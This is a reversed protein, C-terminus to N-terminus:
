MQGEERPMYRMSRRDQHAETSAGSRCCTREAGVHGAVSWGVRVHTRDGSRVPERSAPDSCSPLGCQAPVSIVRLYTISVVEAQHGISFRSSISALTVVERGFVQLHHM